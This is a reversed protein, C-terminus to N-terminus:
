AVKEHISHKFIKGQFYKFNTFLIEDPIFLGSFSFSGAKQALATTQFPVVSNLQSSTFGLTHSVWVWVLAPFFFFTVHKMWSSKYLELKYSTQDLVIRQDKIGNKDGQGVPNVKEVVGPCM